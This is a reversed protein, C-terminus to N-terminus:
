RTPGEVARGVLAAVEPLVARDARAERDVVALREEELTRTRLSRPTRPVLPRV